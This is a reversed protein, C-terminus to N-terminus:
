TKDIILLARILPLHYIRGLTIGIEFGTLPALLCILTIIITKTLKRKPSRLNQM